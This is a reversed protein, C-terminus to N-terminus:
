LFLRDFYIILMLSFMTITLDKKQGGSNCLNGECFCTTMSIGPSCGVTKIKGYTSCGRYVEGGVVFFKM